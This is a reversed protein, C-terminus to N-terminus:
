FVARISFYVPRRRVVYTSIDDDYYDVGVTVASALNVRRM